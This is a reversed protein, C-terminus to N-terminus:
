KRKLFDSPESFFLMKDKPTLTEKFNAIDADHVFMAREGLLMKNEYEPHNEFAEHRENSLLFNGFKVLIYITKEKFKLEEDISFETAYKKLANELGRSEIEEHFNLVDDKNLVILKKM